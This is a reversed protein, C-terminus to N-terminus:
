DGIYFVKLASKLKYFYKHIDRSNGSNIVSISDLKRDYLTIKWIDSFNEKLIQNGNNVNVINGNEKEVWM